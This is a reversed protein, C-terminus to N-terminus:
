QNVAPLPVVHPYLETPDRGVEESLRRMSLGDVGDRDIIGLAALLIGSRTVASDRDPVTPSKGITAVRRDGRGDSDM